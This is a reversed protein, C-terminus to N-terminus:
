GGTLPTSVPERRRAARATGFRVYLRAPGNQVGFRREVVLELTSLDVNWKDRFVRFGFGGSLAPAGGWRSEDGFDGAMYAGAAALLYAEARSAKGIGVYQSPFARALTLRPGMAVGEIVERNGPSVGGALELWPMWAGRGGLALMRGWSLMIERGRDPDGTLQVALNFTAYRPAPTYEPVADQALAPLSPVLTAILLLARRLHM